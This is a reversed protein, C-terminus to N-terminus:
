RGRMRGAVRRALGQAVVPLIESRGRVNWRYRVYHTLGVMFDVPGTARHSRCYDAFIVWNKVLPHEYMRERDHLAVTNEIRETLTTRTGMLAELATAPIEAFGREALYHLGLHLRHTLKQAQAFTVLRSWDIATGAERLVTVADPIWRIPPEPNWRMGHVVVHLLTDTPDLQLTAVGDFDLPRAASWFHQDAADNCTEFMLRWHLDLEGKEPHIFQMSHRYYLDEDSARENRKWGSAELIGIARRADAPQVVVDLDAMPRVAHNRYYALILPLGKVLLTPIEEEALRAVVPRTRHLLVHNEYWAMRYIGKLRPLLPDRLGLRQLNQYLLPMLRFSGRDFEAELDIGQRWTRFAEIAAAGTGLAAQLVLEQEKTPFLHSDSLPSAAM